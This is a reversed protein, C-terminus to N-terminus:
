RHKKKGGKKKKKFKRKTGGKFLKGSNQHNHRASASSLQESGRGPRNPKPRFNQKKPQMESGRQLERAGVAAQSKQAGACNRAAGSGRTASPIGPVASTEFLAFGSWEAGGAWPGAAWGPNFAATPSLGAGSQKNSICSTPWAFGGWVGGPRPPATAILLILTYKRCWAAPPMKCSM